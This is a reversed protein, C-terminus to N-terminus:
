GLWQLYLLSGVRLSSCMEPLNRGKDWINSQASLTWYYHRHQPLEGFSLRGFATHGFIFLYVATGHYTKPRFVCGLPLLLGSSKKSWNDNPMKDSPMIVSLTVVIWPMIAKPNLVSLLIDQPLIASALVIFAPINWHWEASLQQDSHRPARQFIKM